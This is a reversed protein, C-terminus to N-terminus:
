RNLIQITLFIQKNNPARFFEGLPRFKLGHSEAYRWIDVCLKKYATVPVGFTVLRKEHEFELGNLKAYNYWGIVSNSIIDEM